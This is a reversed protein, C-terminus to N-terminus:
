LSRDTPPAGLSPHSILERLVATAFAGQPLSFALWLEADGRTLRPEGLRLRLARRALRVGARELGECLGPYRGALAAEHAGAEGVARSAGVGWLIGAPHLDLRRAREGLEALQAADDPAVDFQSASGDLMVVEGPLPTAWSHDHVRAALLENFLFSRAASLLMGERDDRKRWGRALVARARQLNRGDAGFRQPGVYNAVGLNCLRQWRAELVPDAVAAGTIRLQFRNARHVGRKLKRPHRAQDLVRIGREALQTVLGEPAEQGPLQVSFWQRTVAVRDKMGAYGVVRSSVECLRALERAVMATTLDRKEIFLWLHEGEGEPVFDLAEEVLFDEPVARYDGALPAGLEGELVRPWAPPWDIADQVSPSAVESM